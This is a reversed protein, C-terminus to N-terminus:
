NERPAWVPQDRLQILRKPRRPLATLEQGIRRRPAPVYRWRANAHSPWSPTAADTLAQGLMRASDIMHPATM